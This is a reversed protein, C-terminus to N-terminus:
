IANCAKHNFNANYYFKSNSRHVYLLAIDKPSSARSKFEIPEFLSIFGKLGGLRGAKWGALESVKSCILKHSSL